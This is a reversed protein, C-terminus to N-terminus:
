RPHDHPRMATVARAALVSGLAPVAAGARRANPVALRHRFVDYGSEVIRDLIEGYLTRATVVCPRSAPDLMAIGPDAHRYLAQIRAVQDSLARRVPPDPKGCRRCWLLRDRDVDFAALEDTPLYVRGRDLDEGVDRVFNTTQFANGLAAAHPAAREPVATGLVPLVQLGIVEASGHVYTDLDARTAYDTITLDMRMSTLFDTLYHHPIHYRSVTDLLASLVLEVETGGRFTQDDSSTDTSSTQNLATHLAREIEDLQDAPNTAPTEDMIDDVWRAFGYLAHIAPRRQPPLLRTALFYTRGHAAHLQRCRAYATRLTPHRIGAADLERRNM